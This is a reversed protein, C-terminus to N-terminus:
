RRRKTKKKSKRRKKSGKKKSKRKTSKKSYKRKKRKLTKSGGGESSKLLNLKRKEVPGSMTMFKVYKGKYKEDTLELWGNGMDKGNVHEGKPIKGQFMKKDNKPEPYVSVQRIVEYRGVTQTPAAKRVPTSTATKAPTSTATKAASDPVSICRMPQACGGFGDGAGGCGYPCENSDEGTFNFM